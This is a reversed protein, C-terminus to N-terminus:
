LGNPHPPPECEGGPPRPIVTWGEARIDAEVEQPTLYLGDALHCNFPPFDPGDDFDPDANKVEYWLSTDEPYVASLDAVKVIILAEPWAEKQPGPCCCQIYVKTGPAYSM